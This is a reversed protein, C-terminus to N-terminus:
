LYRGLATRMWITELSGCTRAVNPILERKLSFIISTVCQTGYSSVQRVRVHTGIPPQLVGISINTAQSNMIHPTVGLCLLQTGSLHGEEPLLPVSRPKWREPQQM